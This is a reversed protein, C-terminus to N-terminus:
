HSAEPAQTIQPEVGAEKQTLEAAAQRQQVTAGAALRLQIESIDISGEDGIHIQVTVDEVPLGQQAYSQSLEQEIRRQVLQGLSQEMGATFTETRYDPVEKSFDWSFELGGQLFPFVLSCLLFLSLCFKWVREMSKAPSLMSFVGSLILAACLSQAVIRVGNM